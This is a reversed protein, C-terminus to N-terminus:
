RFKTKCVTSDVVHQGPKLSCCIRRRIPRHALVRRRATSEGPGDNGPLLGDALALRHEVQCHTPACQRSILATTDTRRLKTFTAQHPGKIMPDPWVGDGVLQQMHVCTYWSGM